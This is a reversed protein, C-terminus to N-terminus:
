RALGKKGSRVKLHERRSKAGVLAGRASVEVRRAYEEDTEPRDRYLHFIGYDSEAAGSQDIVLRCGDGLALFERMQDVTVSDRGDWELSAVIEEVTKRRSWPADFWEGDDIRWKVCGDEVKIYFAPAIKAETM